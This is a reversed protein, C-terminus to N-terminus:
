NKKHLKINPILKVLAMALLTTIVVIWQSLHIVKVLVERAYNILNLGNEGTGQTASIFKEYMTSSVLIQPDLLWFGWQNKEPVDILEHIQHAYAHTIFVGILAAGLMNGIMRMSQLMATSSGLQTRPASAQGLLIINPLVFGLGLGGIAMMVLILNRSTEINTQTLFIINALFLSIGLYLAIRPNPLRSILRGNVISGVTILVALPTILIGAKNPSLHFGGQFMLPAYYMVAFMSFGMLLSLIFLPLLNPHKFMELPIIPNKSKKEWWILTALSMITILGLSALIIIPKNLPLWELFVQLSGLMITLLISGQWDLQSAIHDSHRIKPLHQWVFFLSVVGVPVNVFFVWRWGWYETLYGGLYPGVASALGYATSFIVQWRIRQRSDPFLDPVSAFTTAVIMGGGIGQIARAIVLQMMNQSFGCLVSALTFIVISVIVFNKRGHDDGLKGFIPLAIVSTLLYSTGVWAYLEFGNLEAVITPLATGIITQDLAVMILVFSLGLMALLIQRFNLQTSTSIM